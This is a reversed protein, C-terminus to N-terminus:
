KREKNNPLQSLTNLRSVSPWKSPATNTQVSLQPWFWTRRWFSETASAQRGQVRWSLRCLVPHVDAVCLPIVTIHWLTRSDTHEWRGPVSLPLVALDRLTTAPTAPRNTMGVVWVPWKVAPSRSQSSIAFRNHNIRERSTMMLNGTGTESTGAPECKNWDRQSLQWGRACSCQYSTYGPKCFQTCGKNKELICLTTDAGHFCLAPSLLVWVGASSCIFLPSLVCSPHGGWRKWLPGGHFGVQLRLRLRGRQGFVASWEQLAERCVPRWRLVCVALRLFDLATSIDTCCHFIM